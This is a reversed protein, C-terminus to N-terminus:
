HPPTSDTAYTDVFVKINGNLVGALKQNDASEFTGETTRAPASTIASELVSPQNPSVVIWNGLVM